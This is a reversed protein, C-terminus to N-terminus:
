LAYFLDCLGFSINQEVFSNMRLIRDLANADQLLYRGTRCCCFVRWPHRTFCYYMSYLLVYLIPFFIYDRTRNWVLIFCSFTYRKYSAGNIAHLFTCVLIITTQKIFIGWATLTEQVYNEHATSSRLIVPVRSEFFLFCIGLM